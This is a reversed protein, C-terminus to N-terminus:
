DGEEKRPEFFEVQEGLPGFCFAIVAPFPVEIKKPELFVEYGATRVADAFAAADDVEFAFHRIAGLERKGEGNCFVELMGSGTDLVIGQPWERVTKLGLIGCYFRRVNELEEASACKMSCHHLSSIKM